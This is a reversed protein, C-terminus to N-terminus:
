KSSPTSESLTDDCRISLTETESDPSERGVVLGCSARDERTAQMRGIKGACHPALNGAIGELGRALDLLAYVAAVDPRITGDELLRAIRGPGDASSVVSMMAGSV